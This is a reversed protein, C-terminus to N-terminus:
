TIKGDELFNYIPISLYPETTEDFDGGVFFEIEGFMEVYSLVVIGRSKDVFSVDGPFYRIDLEKAYTFEIGDDFLFDVSVGFRELKSNIEKPTIHEFDPYIKRCVRQKM